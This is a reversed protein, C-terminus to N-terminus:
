TNEQQHSILAAYSLNFMVDIDDDFYNLLETEGFRLDNILNFYSFDRKYYSYQDIEPLLYDHLLKRFQLHIRSYESEPIDHSHFM